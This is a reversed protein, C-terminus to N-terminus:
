MLQQVAGHTWDGVGCYNLSCGEARLLALLEISVALARHLRIATNSRANLSTSPYSHLSFTKEQRGDAPFHQVLVEREMHSLQAWEKRLLDVDALSARTLCALCGVVLGEPTDTPLCARGIFPM